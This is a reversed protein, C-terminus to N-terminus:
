EIVYFKKILVSEKNKSKGKTDIRIFYIGLEVQQGGVKGFWEFDEVGSFNYINKSYIVNGSFSLIRISVDSKEKIDISFSFKNNLDFAPTFDILTINEEGEVRNSSKVPTYGKVLMVDDIYFVGSTGTYPDNIYFDIQEIKNFEIIGDGCPDCGGYELTNGDEFNNPKLPIKYEVWFNHEVRNGTWELYDDENDNCDPNCDFSSNDDDYMGVNLGGTNGTEGRVYFILLDYDSIDTQVSFNFGIGATNWATLTSYIVKISHAGNYHINTSDKLQASGDWNVQVWNAIGSEFDDLLNTYETSYLNVKFCILLIFIMLVKKM